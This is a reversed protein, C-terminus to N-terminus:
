FPFTGTPEPLYGVISEYSYYADVAVADVAPGTFDTHPPIYYITAGSAVDAGLSTGPAIFTDISTNNWVEVVPNTASEPAPLVNEDDYVIGLGQDLEDVTLNADILGLAQGNALGYCYDNLDLLGTKCGNISSYTTWVDVLDANAPLAPLLMSTATIAIAVPILCRLRPM